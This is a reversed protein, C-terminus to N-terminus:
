LVGTLTDLRGPSLLKPSPPDPGMLFLRSDSTLHIKAVDISKELAIKLRGKVSTSSSSSKLLANSSESALEVGEVGAGLSVGVGPILVSATRQLKFYRTVKEM